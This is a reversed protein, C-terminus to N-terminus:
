PETSSNRVDTSGEYRDPRYRRGTRRALERRERETRGGWIGFAEDMGAELCRSRVACGACVSKALPASEWRDPFFIEAPM